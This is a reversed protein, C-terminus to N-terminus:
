TTWLSITSCDVFRHVVTWIFLLEIFASCTYDPDRLKAEVSLTAISGLYCNNKDVDPKSISEQSRYVDRM